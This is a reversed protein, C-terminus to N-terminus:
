AGNVTGLVHARLGDVFRNFEREFPDLPLDGHDLRGEAIRRELERIAVVLAQAGFTGANSRLTHLLLSANPLDGAAIAERLERPTDGRSGLFTQLLRQFLAQNGSCHRLAMELNFGDATASATPGDASRPMLAVPRTWRALAAFLDAPDFPKTVFDNMGASLCKERVGTMAHATMAIIPIQAWAPESRIRATAEYGDMHPMQVDMLIADFRGSRLAAMCQLGDAAITVEVQALSSLLEQAVQQNFENDECLLVRLGRLQNLDAANPTPAVAPNCAAAAPPPPAGRMATALATHLSHLCFPRTLHADVQQQEIQLADDSGYHCALVIRPAGFEVQRRLNGACALAQAPEPGSGLVVTHFPLGARQASRAAALGENFSAAVTPTHGLQRLLGVLIRSATASHHVALVRLPPLEDALPVATPAGVADAATSAVGFSATFHFESGRGLESKVGIEGGMLEVLQKCIALGLGTGGYKRSSSADVQSFPVFLRQMQAPSMGIGTDRVSFRLTVPEGDGVRTVSVLVEGRETFKTANHCLNILVQGLRSADGVLRPPVDAAGDFLLELGKDRARSSIVPKLNGLLEALSFEANALSLKGAEIKSFDLIDNIVSLLSGSAAKVNLLYRRQRPSPEARLALETMGIVANMPTRIEHSMNALFEGKARSAAEAADLALLLESTREHVRSELTENLDRLAKETEKLYTVDRGIGLVGIVRGHADRTPAITNLMLKRQGSPDKVWEEYTLAMGAEIVARDTSGFEQAHQASFIEQDTKGIIDAEQLGALKECAVNCARYVGNLDKLWIVDPIAQVLTCLQAASDSARREARLRRRNQLFLVVVTVSLVGIALAMAFLLGRGPRGHVPTPPPAAADAPLAVRLGSVQQQAAQAGTTMPWLAGARAMAACSASGGRSCPRLGTAEFPAAAAVPLAHLDQAQAQAAAALVLPVLALRLCHPVLAM